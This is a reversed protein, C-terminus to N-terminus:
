VDSPVVLLRVALVLLIPYCNVMIKNNQAGIIGFYMEEGLYM